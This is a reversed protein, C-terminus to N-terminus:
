DTRQEWSKVRRSVTSPHVEFHEAVEQLTFGGQLYAQVMSEPFEYAQQYDKLVVKDPQLKRKGNAKGNGQKDLSKYVRRVFDQDGLFVQHRVRQWVDEESSATFLYAKWFEDAPHRVQPHQNLLDLHLPPALKDPKEGLLQATSGWPWNQPRSVWGKLWPEALVQRVLPVLFDKSDVLLAKYRGAFLSGKRGHRRNYSQTYLGNLQRMGSSLRGKPLRVVLHYHRDLQCWALCQWGYREIVGQLHKMWDLRDQTVPFLVEEDTRATLHYFGGPIEIRLPRSM